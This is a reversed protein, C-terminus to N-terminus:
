PVYFSAVKLQDQLPPVASYELRFVLHQAQSPLMIQFVKWGDLPLHYARVVKRKHRHNWEAWLFIANKSYIRLMRVDQAPNLQLEFSIGRNTSCLVGLTGSSVPFTKENEVLISQAPLDLKQLKLDRAKDDWRSPSRQILEAGTGSEFPGLRMSEIYAVSQRCTDLSLHCILRWDSEKAGRYDYIAYKGEEFRKSFYHILGYNREATATFGTLYLLGILVWIIRVKRSSKPNEM